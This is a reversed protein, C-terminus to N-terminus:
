CANARTFFTMLLIQFELLLNWNEVYYLDCKIREILDTDGRLGHVQAWGTIGPKIGHRANYHPIQEKFKEILEPREPRPGVLSMEGRLVNWFQPVEDINLSRMLSGIRLRRPDEPRSWGVVGGAEADLKMSRIKIIHFRKGDRGLRTQRYFIPGPSEAYVLAGFVAIVPGSLALGVLAGVIDIGRKLIQNWPSDLPLRSIGLVPVGSTTELHLGSLLVQFCSPIIQLHVMEKECTNVLELLSGRTPNFDAVMVLDICHEGLLTKVEGYEGLVEVRGAPDRDYRGSVSPVCGVVQYPHKPDAEISEVLRQSQESWGVFLIRRQLLAAIPGISLFAAFLRHWLMLTAQTTVFACLLYIRSVIPQTNLEFSLAVNGVFWVVGSTLVIAYVRRLRLPRGTGYLGFHFLVLLLTVSLFFFHGRYQEIPMLATPAHGLFRLPTAFRLPFALLVGSVVALIDGAFSLGVMWAAFERSKRENAEPKDFPSSSSSTSSSSRGPRDTLFATPTEDKTPSGGIANM